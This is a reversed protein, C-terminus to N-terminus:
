ILERCTAIAHCLDDFDADIKRLVITFQKAGVFLIPLSGIPLQSLSAIDFKESGLKERTVNGFNFVIAIM